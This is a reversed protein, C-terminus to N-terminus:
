RNRDLWVAAWTQRLHCSINEGLNSGADSQSCCEERQVSRICLSTNKEGRSRKMKQYCALARSPRLTMGKDSQEPRICHTTICFSSIKTKLSPHNFRREVATIWSWLLQVFDLDSVVCHFRLHFCLTLCLHQWKGWTQLSFEWLERSWKHRKNLVIWDVFRQPPPCILCMIIVSPRLPDSQQRWKLSVNFFFFVDVVIIQMVNRRLSLDWSERQRFSGFVSDYSMNTSFIHTQFVPPICENQGSSLFVWVVHLYGSEIINERTSAWIDSHEFYLVIEPSHRHSETTETPVKLWLRIDAATNWDKLLNDTGAKSDLRVYFRFFSLHRM